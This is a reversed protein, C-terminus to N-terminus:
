RSMGCLREEKSDEHWGLTAEPLIHQKLEWLARERCRGGWSSPLLSFFFRKKSKHLDKKRRTEQGLYKM